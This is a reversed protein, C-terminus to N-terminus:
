RGGAADDFLQRAIVLKQIENTGEGIQCIKADRMHREVPYDTTYGYGGLLQVGRTTIDMAADSAYLKAMSAEARYPRGAQKLWAAHYVLHRAAQIQTAMEALQFQIGQFDRLPRGFQERRRSFALATDLAGQALGLALAGVGIRGADLTRMFNTFGQGEEGLRNGAPVEVDELILERTDSARWGMKDEKKAARVGPMFPELEPAHGVGVRDAEDRDTTEKTVIFSSIGKTGRDRETVATVVFVEGVGAHTIFIKSGNLRYHGDERVATTRTAAADSGAGPETLGFGSLVRGRALLPVYRQRQEDTGFNLIPSLGLTSHASVTIAHSADIRALEEIVLIYSLYDKGLGGLEEPVHIGFWGRDALERVNDWPFRAQEDLERAVPAIRAEAFERVEARLAHHDDNLYPEM